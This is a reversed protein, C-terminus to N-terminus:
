VGGSDVTKRSSARGAIVMANAKIERITPCTKAEQPALFKAGTVIVGKARGANHEDLVHQKLADWAPKSGPVRPFQPAYLMTTVRARATRWTAKMDAVREQDDAHPALLAGMNGVYISIIAADSTSVLHDIAILFPVEQWDLADIRDITKPVPSGVRTGKVKGQLRRIPSSLTCGACRSRM